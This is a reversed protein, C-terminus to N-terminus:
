EFETARSRPAAHRYSIKGNEPTIKIVDKGAKDHVSKGKENRYRIM